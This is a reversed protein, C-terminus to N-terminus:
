ILQWTYAGVKSIRIPIPHLFRSNTWNDKNKIAINEMPGCATAWDVVWGSRVVRGMVGGGNEPM